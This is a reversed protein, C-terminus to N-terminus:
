ELYRMIVKVFRDTAKGDLHSFFKRIINKHQMFVLKDDIGSTLCDVLKNPTAHYLEPQNDYLRENGPIMMNFAPVGAAYM